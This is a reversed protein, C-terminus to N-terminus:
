SLQSGNLLTTKKPNFLLDAILFGTGIVICSDAINFAPWHYDGVHLDIFDAVASFRIRDAVNGVAGGIILSLAISILKTDACYLWVIMLLSAAVALSILIMHVVPHGSDFLGFSIGKNWVMVINLLANVVVPEEKGKLVLDFVAWKSIQDAIIVAAAGLIGKAFFPGPKQFSKM